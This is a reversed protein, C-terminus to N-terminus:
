TSSKLSSFGAPSGAGTSVCGMVSISFYTISTDKIKNFSDIFLSFLLFVTGDVIFVYLCLVLFHILPLDGGLSFNPHGFKCHFSFDLRIQVLINILFATILSRSIQRM